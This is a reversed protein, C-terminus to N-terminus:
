FTYQRTVPDYIIETTFNSPDSLYLPSKNNLDELPNGTNIPIPYIVKTTDPEVIYPNHYFIDYTDAALRPSPLLFLALFLLILFASNLISFSSHFEANRMGCEANRM